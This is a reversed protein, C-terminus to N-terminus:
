HASSLPFRLSYAVGGGESQFVKIDGACFQMLEAVIVLGLGHQRVNDMHSLSFNEFFAQYIDVDMGVGHDSVIVTGDKQILVKVPASTESHKIANNLLNTLVMFVVMSNAQIFIEQEEPYRFDIEVNSKLALTACEACATQVEGILSLCEAQSSLATAKSFSILREILENLKRLDLVLESKLEPEAIEEVRARFVTLPTRLEHAIVDRLWREREYGADLRTFAANVSEVLGLVETFVGESPLTKEKSYPSIKRAVRSARSVPRILFYIVIPTLLMLILYLFFLAREDESALEYFVELFSYQRPNTPEIGGVEIFSAGSDACNQVLTVIELSEFGKPLTLESCFAGTKKEAMIAQVATDKLTVPERGFSYGVGDSSSYYYFWIDPNRNIAKQLGSSGTLDKSTLKVADRSILDLEAGIISPKNFDSQGPMKQGINARKTRAINPNYESFFDELEYSVAIAEEWGLADLETMVRYQNMMAIGMMVLHVILSLAIIRASLSNYISKMM